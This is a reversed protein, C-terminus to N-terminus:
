YREFPARKLDEVKEDAAPWHYIITSAGRGVPKKLEELFKRSLYPMGNRDIGDLVVLFANKTIGGSLCQQLKRFDDSAAREAWLRGSGIWIQNTGWFLKLEIMAEYSPLETQLKWARKYAQHNVIVIDARRKAAWEELRVYRPRKIEGEAHVWWQSGIGRYPANKKLCSLLGWHVDRENWYYIGGYTDDLHSYRRYSKLFSEICDGVTMSKKSRRPM